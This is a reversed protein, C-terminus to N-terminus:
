KRRQARIRQWILWGVFCFIAILIVTLLESIERCSRFYAGSPEEGETVGFNLRLPGKKRLIVERARTSIGDKKSKAIGRDRIAGVDEIPCPLDVRGQRRNPDDNAPCVVLVGLMFPLKSKGQVIKFRGQVIGLKAEVPRM